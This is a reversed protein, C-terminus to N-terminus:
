KPADPKNPPKPLFQELGPRQFARGLEEVAKEAESVGELAKTLRQLQQLAEQLKALDRKRAAFEANKAATEILEYLYTKADKVTKEPEGPKKVESQPPAQKRPAEKDHACLCLTLGLLASVVWGLRLM